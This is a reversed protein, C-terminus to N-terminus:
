PTIFHSKVLLHLLSRPWLRKQALRHVDCRRPVRQPHCSTPLDRQCRGQRVGGSWHIRHRAWRGHSSAGFVARSLLLALKGFIPGFDEKCLQACSNYTPFGQERRFHPLSDEVSHEFCVSEWGTPAGWAGPHLTNPETLM